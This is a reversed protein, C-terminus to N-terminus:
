FDNQLRLWNFVTKKNDKDLRAIFELFNYDCRVWKELLHDSLEGEGFIEDCIKKNFRTQLSFFINYHNEIVNM